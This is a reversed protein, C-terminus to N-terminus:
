RIEKVFLVMAGALLMCGGALLFLMEFQGGAAPVLVYSPLMVAGVIQITAIIGGATGAYVAGIKPLQVPIGMLTPIMGGLFTGTLCLCVGLMVVGPIKWAFAIGAAALVAFLILTKKQSKLIKITAPAAFCGLLNGMTYCAAMTGATGAAVGRGALATPLFSSIVVNAAMIFFLSFATLWVGREKLAHKLCEAMSEKKEESADHESELNKMLGIWLVAGICAIAAGLMFATRVSSFYATTLNAITMAGTSFAMLIGMKAAINETQYISSIIKGAGATIFCATVGTLMMCVFLQGYQNCFIRAVCGAATLVLGIGIVNKPGLRDILIGGALSLFITPIMPASFLSSLNGLDLGYYEMLQSGLPSLQYQVYNPIMYCFCLVVFLIGVPIKHEKRGM